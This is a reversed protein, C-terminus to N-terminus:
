LACRRIEARILANFTQHQAMKQKLTAPDSSVWKELYRNVRDKLACPLPRDDGKAASTDSPDGYFPYIKHVWASAEEPTQGRDIIELFHATRALEDMGIMLRREYEHLNYWAAIDADSAGDTRALWVIRQYEINSEQERLILQGLGEPEGSCGMCIDSMWKRAERGRIGMKELMPLYLADMEAALQRAIMM